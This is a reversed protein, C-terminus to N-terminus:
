RAQHVFNRVVIGLLVMVILVDFFRVGQLIQFNCSQVFSSYFSWLWSFGQNIM